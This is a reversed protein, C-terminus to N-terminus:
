KNEDVEVIFELPDVDFLEITTGHMSKLSLNIFTSSIDVVLMSLAEVSLKEFRSGTCKYCLGNKTECLLPSRVNVVKGDFQGMNETTIEILDNGSVVYRGIFQHIDVIHFDVQLVRDTGCDPERVELDQFVRTIFKSLAGGKQTEHGREFSGKRVENAIAPFAEPSWGDALSNPVFTYKGTGKDFDEIGGIALFMKKRSVNFQKKGLPTLFRMAADGELWARDMRLLEDEIKKMVIPDNLQDKYQELLEAKRQKVAPDTTLSRRTGTPVGLETFHGIFYMGDIARNVQEAAAKDALLANALYKEVTKVNWVDNIYPVIAGLSQALVIYNLLFRGVSTTVDDGQPYNEINGASMVFEDRVKFPPEPVEAHNFVCYDYVDGEKSTLGVRTGEMIVIQGPQVETTIGKFNLRVRGLDRNTPDDNIREVVEAEPLSTLTFMEILQQRELLRHRFQVLFKSEWERLM